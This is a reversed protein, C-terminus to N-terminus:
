PRDGKASLQLEACDEPKEKNKKVGCYWDYYYLNRLDKDIRLSHKYDEPNPDSLLCHACIYGVPVFKYSKGNGNFIRIYFRQLEKKCDPCFRRGEYM